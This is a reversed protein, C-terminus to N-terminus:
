CERSHIKSRVSFGEKQMELYVIIVGKWVGEVLVKRYVLYFLRKSLLERNGIAQKQLLGWSGRM